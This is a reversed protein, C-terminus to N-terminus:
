HYYHNGRINEHEIDSLLDSQTEPLPQSDLGKELILRIAALRTIGTALARHCAAELRQPSHKKALGLLGLCVRYSQEPHRKAQLLQSVLKETSEGISRAWKEFRQPSWQQQKQHAVPMHEDLAIEQDSSKM